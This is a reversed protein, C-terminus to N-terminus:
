NKKAYYKQKKFDEYIRNCFDYYMKGTEELNLLTINKQYFEYNRVIKEIKEIIDHENHFILDKNNVLEANSGSNIVVSPLGCALAEILANSCSENKAASIFIDHQKLQEALEKSKLPRIRNINIFKIPSNGIFTMEYRSFDLNKDLYKYIKFGKNWNKSWSNTILRIKRKTEFTIKNNKNFLDKDPANHIVTEYKNKEMNLKFNEEMSWCSQFITGDALFKNFNHIIKDVILDKGRGLFIPGDVRHILIKGKKKLNYAQKFRYEEGFPFSNFIVIDVKNPNREYVGLSTFYKKLAKLFQNGGGYPGEKLDVLISVKM